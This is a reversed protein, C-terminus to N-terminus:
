KVAEPPVQIKMDALQGAKAQGNKKYESYTHAGLYGLILTVQPGVAELFPFGKLLAKIMAEIFILLCGLLTVKIRSYRQFFRDICGINPNFGM